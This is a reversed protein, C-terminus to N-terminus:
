GSGSASRLRVKPSCHATRDANAGVSSPVELESGPGEGRAPSPLRASLGRCRSADPHADLIRLPVARAVPGPRAGPSPGGNPVVDGCRARSNVRVGDSQDAICGGDRDARSSPRPPTRRIDVDRHVRWRENRAPRRWDARAQATLALWTRARMTLCARTLPETVQDLAIVRGARYTALGLLGVDLASFANKALDQSDSSAANSRETAEGPVHSRQRAPALRRGTSARRQM